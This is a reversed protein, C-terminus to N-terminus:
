SNFFIAAATSSSFAKALLLISLSLSVSIYGDEAARGALKVRFNPDPRGTEAFHRNDRNQPRISADLRSVQLRTRALCTESFVSDTYTPTGSQHCDASACRPSSSRKADAIPGRRRVARACRLATHRHAHPHPAANDTRRWALPASPIALVHGTPPWELASARAGFGIMQCLNRTKRSLRAAATQKM